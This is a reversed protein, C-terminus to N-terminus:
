PASNQTAASTAQSNDKSLWSTSIREFAHVGELPYLVRAGVRIFPPGKGAHRWNALTQHSLKWRGALEPGTLFKDDSM